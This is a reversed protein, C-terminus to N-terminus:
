SLQTTEQEGRQPLTSSNLDTRFSQIVRPLERSEDTGLETRRFLLFLACARVMPVLSSMMSSL